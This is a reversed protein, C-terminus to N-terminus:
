SQRCYSSTQRVTEHLSNAHKFHWLVSIMWEDTQRRSSCRSITILVYLVHTARTTRNL